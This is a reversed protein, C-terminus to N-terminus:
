HQISSITGMVTKPSSNHFPYCYRYENYIGDFEPTIINSDPNIYFAPIKLLQCQSCKIKVSKADCHLVNYVPSLNKLPM